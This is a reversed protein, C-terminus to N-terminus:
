RFWTGLRKFALDISRTNSSPGVVSPEAADDDVVLAATYGRPVEISWCPLEGAALSEVRTPRHESHPYWAEITALEQRLGIGLTKVFAEKRVLTELLMRQRRGTSMSEYAERERQTLVRRALSHHDTVTHMMEVDIGLRRHGVAVLALDGAHSFSFEIHPHSMVHPKGLEDVQFRIEAPHLGLAEGLTKRLAARRARFLQGAEPQNYRAARRREDESLWSRTVDSTSDIRLGVVSVASVTSADQTELEALRM